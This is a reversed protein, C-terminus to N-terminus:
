REAKVGETAGGTGRPCLGAEKAGMLEPTSGDRQQHFPRQDACRREPLIEATQWGAPVIACAERVGSRKGVNPRGGPISEAEGRM